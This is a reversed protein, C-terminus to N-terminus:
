PAVGEAEVLWLTDLHLFRMLGVVACAAGLVDHVLAATLGPNQRRTVTAETVLTRFVDEAAERSIEFPVTPAGGVEVAAVASVATGSLEVRDSYEAAPLERTVDELHDQFWGIANTLEEPLPPDTPLLDCLTGVGVPISCTAGDAAFTADGARLIVQLTTV